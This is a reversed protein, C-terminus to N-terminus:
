PGADGELYDRESAQCRDWCRQLNKFCEQFDNKEPTNLVAQSEAQIEELMKFRGRLSWKWNQFYSFTTPHLTLRTPHIHYWLWTTIPGFGDLWSLLMPQRMTMTSCGHTTGGSILDSGECMGGYVNLFKSTSYLMLEKVLLFFEKHVIGKQDLFCILMSKINSRMQRAKKPRPSGQSKWQSSQIKTEPDFTYVLTEDSTIVNSLSSPNIAANEKLDLWIGLRQQTQDVSLIIPVFKSAVRRM